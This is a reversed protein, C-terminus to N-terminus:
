GTWGGATPHPIWLGKCSPCSFAEIQFGMSRQGISLTRLIEGVHLEIRVDQSAVHGHGIGHLRLSSPALEAGCQQCKPPPTPKPWPGFTVEAFPPEDEAYRFEVILRTPRPRMYDDGWIQWDGSEDWSYLEHGAAKLEDVLRKVEAGRDTSSRLRGSLVDALSSALANADEAQDFDVRSFVSLDTM